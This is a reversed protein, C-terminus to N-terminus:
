GLQGNAARYVGDRSVPKHLLPLGAQRMLDTEAPATDGSLLLAPLRFDPGFRTRLGPVVTGIADIGAEGDELRYGSTVLHPMQEQERLREIANRGSGAALVQCRVGALSM